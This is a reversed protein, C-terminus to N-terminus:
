YTFQTNSKLRLIFLFRLYRLIQDFYILKPRLLKIAPETKAAAYHGKNQMELIIEKQM